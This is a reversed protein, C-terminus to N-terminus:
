ARKASAKFGFRLVPQEPEQPIDLWAASRLAM